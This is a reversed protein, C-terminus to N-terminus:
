KKANLQNLLKKINMSLIGAIIGEFTYIFFSILADYVYRIDFTPIDVDYYFTIVVPSSITFFFIVYVSFLAFLINNRSFFVSLLLATLFAPIYIYFINSELRELSFSIIFFIILSAPILFFLKLASLILPYKTIRIDKM